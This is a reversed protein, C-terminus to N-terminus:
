LLSRWGRVGLTHRREALSRGVGGSKMVPVRSARKGPGADAVIREPCLREPSYGATHLTERNERAISGRM